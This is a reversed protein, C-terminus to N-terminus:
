ACCLARKTRNEPPQLLWQNDRTSTALRASLYNDYVQIDAIAAPLEESLCIAGDIQSDFLRYAKIAPHCDPM